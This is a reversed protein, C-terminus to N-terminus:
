LTERGDQGIQPQSREDERIKRTIEIYRETTVVMARPVERDDQPLTIISHVIIPNNTFEVKCPLGEVTCLLTLM